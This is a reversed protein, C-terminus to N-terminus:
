KRAIAAAVVRTQAQAGGINPHLPAALSFPPNSSPGGLLEVYRTAPATCVNHGITATYTDVLQANQNRAATALMANLQQYKQTFWAADVPRVPVIPYCGKGNDPVAELYNVVLIRVDKAARTRVQRIMAEIKPETLNFARTVDDVGNRVHADRCSKNALGDEVCEQALPILGVDNGGIGITVLNTRPTIRNLQPPNFRVTHTAGRHLRGDDGRRM